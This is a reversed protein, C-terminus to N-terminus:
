HDCIEWQYEEMINIKISRRKSLTFRSAFLLFPLFFDVCLLYDLCFTQRLIGFYIWLLFKLHVNPIKGSRKMCQIHICVFVDKYIDTTLFNVLSWICKLNYFIVKPYRMRNISPPPSHLRKLSWDLNDQWIFPCSHRKLEKFKGQYSFVKSSKKRVSYVRNDLSWQEISPSLSLYLEM